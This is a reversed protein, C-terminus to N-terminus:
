FQEDAVLRPLREGLLVLPHEFRRAAFGVSPHEGFVVREVRRRELAQEGVAHLERRERVVHESRAVLGRLFIVLRDRRLVGLEPLHVLGPFFEAGLRHLPKRDRFAALVVEHDACLASRLAARALLASTDRRVLFFAGSAPSKNKTEGVDLLHAMFRRDKRFFAPTASAAPVAVAAGRLARACVGVTEQRMASLQGFLRSARYPPMSNRALRTESAVAPFNLM